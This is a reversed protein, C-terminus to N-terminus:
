KFTSLETWVCSAIVNDSFAETIGKLDGYIDILYYPLKRLKYGDSNASSNNPSFISASFNKNQNFMQLLRDVAWCAASSYRNLQFSTNDIFQTRITKKLADSKAYSKLESTIIIHNNADKKLEKPNKFLADVGGLSEARNKIVAYSRVTVSHAYTDAAIHTALGLVRKSVIDRKQNNSSGNPYSADLAYNIASRLVGLDTNSLGKKYKKLADQEYNDKAMSCIQSYTMNKMIKAVQYLYGTGAVYNTANSGHLIRNDLSVKTQFEDDAKTAYEKIDEDGGVLTKHLNEGWLGEVIEPIEYGYVESTNEEIAENAADEQFGDMIERAYGYDVLGYGYEEAEGLQRASKQLLQRIYRCSKGSDFSWLMAAVATVHPAAFSTGNAVGCKQLFYSTPVNEGPAVLEVGNGYSSFNSREMGQDVSGVGIVQSYAAPYQVRVDKEEGNNGASAVMLIGAEEAKEVIQELIASYNKMGISMNIIDIGNDICWQIGEIIRSVPAQNNKDLVKVSYMKIHDCNAAVGVNEANQNEAAIITQVATGHGSIDSAFGESEPDVFDVAGEVPYDAYIDRGSDLVAIKITDTGATGEEVHLARCNWQGEALEQLAEEMQEEEAEDNEQNEGADESAGEMVADKEVTVGDIGELTEAQGASLDAVLINEEPLSGEEQYGEAIEDQYARSIEKYDRKRETKVIYQATGKKNTITHAKDVACDTASGAVEVASNSVAVTEGEELIIRTNVEMSPTEQEKAKAHVGALSPEMFFVVLNVVMVIAIGRIMKEKKM